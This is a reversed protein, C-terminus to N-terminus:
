GKEKLREAHEFNMIVWEIAAKYGERWEGTSAIAHLKWKAHERLEAKIEEIGEERAEAAVTRILQTLEDKSIQLGEYPEFYETWVEGVLEKIREEKM